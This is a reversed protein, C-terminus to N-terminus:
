TTLARYFVAAPHYTALVTMGEHEFPKGRLNAIPEKSGTAALLGHRSLTVIIRPRILEIQRRLYRNCAHL